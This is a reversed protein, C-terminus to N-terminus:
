NAFIRLGSMKAMLLNLKRAISKISPLKLHESLLYLIYIFYVWVLVFFSAKNEKLVKLSEYKRQAPDSITKGLSQKRYCSLYERVYLFSKGSRFLECFFKWDFCYQLSSDLRLANKRWFTSPQLFHDTIKMYEYTACKDASLSIPMLFCGAEDVYYGDATIVDVKPFADFIGVVREIVTDGFYFDDANLWCVIDGKALEFGRNLADAQGKDKERIYKIDYKNIYIKVINDTDDSSCSDLIIHEINKYTQNFVSIITDEIYTGQNYSPTIITVLPPSKLKENFDMNM